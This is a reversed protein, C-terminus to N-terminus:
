FYVYWGEGEGEESEREREEKVKGVLILNFIIDAYRGPEM